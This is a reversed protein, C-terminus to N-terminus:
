EQTLMTALLTFKYFPSILPSIIANMKRDSVVALM